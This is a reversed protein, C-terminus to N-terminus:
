TGSFRRSSDSHHHTYHKCPSEVLHALPSQQFRQFKGSPFFLSLMWPKQSHTRTFANAYVAPRGDGIYTLAKLLSLECKCVENLFDDDWGRLRRVSGVRRVEGGVVKVDVGMERGHREKHLQLVRM